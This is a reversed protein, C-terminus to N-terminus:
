GGNAEDEDEVVMLGDAVEVIDDLLRILVTIQRQEFQELPMGAHPEAQVRAAREGLPEIAAM